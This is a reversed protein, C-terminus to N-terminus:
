ATSAGTASWAKSQLEDPEELTPIGADFTEGLGSGAMAGHADAWETWDKRADEDSDLYATVVRDAGYDNARWAVARALTKDGTIVARELKRALAGPDTIGEVSDLAARYNMQVLAPDSGHLAPAAFAKREAARAREVLGSRREEHLRREERKAEEYVPRMMRAKAERTLDEDARIDALRRELKERNQRLKEDVRSM